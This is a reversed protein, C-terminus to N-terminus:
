GIPIEPGQFQGKAVLGPGKRELPACVSYCMSEKTRYQHICKKDERVTLLPFSFQTTINRSMWKGDTEIHIQVGM